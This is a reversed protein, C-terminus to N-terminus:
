RFHKPPCRFYHCKSRNIRMVQSLIARGHSDGEPERSNKSSNMVVYLALPFATTHGKGVTISSLHQFNTYCKTKKKKTLSCVLIYIKVERKGRLESYFLSKRRVGKTLENATRYHHPAKTKEEEKVKIRLKSKKRTGHRIPAVKHLATRQNGSPSFNLKSFWRHPVSNGIQSKVEIKTTKKTVFIHAYLGHEQALKKMEM